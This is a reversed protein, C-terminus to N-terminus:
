KMIADLAKMMTDDWKVSTNKVKKLLKKRIFMKYALKAVIFAFKELQLKM